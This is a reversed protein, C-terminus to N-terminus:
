WIKKLHEILKRIENLKFRFDYRREGSAVEQRFVDPSLWYDSKHLFVDYLEPIDTRCVTAVELWKVRLQESAEDGIDADRTERIHESTLQYADILAQLARGKNQKDIDKRELYLKFGNIVANFFEM